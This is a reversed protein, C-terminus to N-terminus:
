LPFQPFKRSEWEVLIVINPWMMYDGKEWKQKRIREREKRGVLAFMNDAGSMAQRARKEVADATGTATPGSFLIRARM